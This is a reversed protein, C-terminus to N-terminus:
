GRKVLVCLVTTLAMLLFFIVRRTVHRKVVGTIKIAVRMKCVVVRNETYASAWSPMEESRVTSWSRRIIGSHTAPPEKTKIKHHCSEKIYISWQSQSQSQYQEKLYIYLTPCLRFGIYTETESYHNTHNVSPRFKHISQPNCMLHSSIPHPPIVLSPGKM